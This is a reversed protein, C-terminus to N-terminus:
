IYKKVEILLNEFKMPKALLADAKIMAKDEESTLSFKMGTQHEVGTIVIIPVTPDKKKIYQSLAFGGDLSEMMLDTIVLDPRTKKFAAEADDQGGCAIV